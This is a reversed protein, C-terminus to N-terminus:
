WSVEDYEFEGKSLPKAKWIRHFTGPLKYKSRLEEIKNLISTLELGTVPNLLMEWQEINNKDGILSIFSRCLRNYEKLDESNFMKEIDDYTIGESDDVTSIRALEDASVTKGKILNKM